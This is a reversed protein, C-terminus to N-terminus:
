VVGLCENLPAKMRNWSFAKRSAKDSVASAPPYTHRVEILGHELHRVVALIGRGTGPRISTGTNTVRCFFCDHQQRARTLLQSREAELLENAHMALMAQGGAKVANMRGAILM